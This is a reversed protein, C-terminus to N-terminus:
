LVERGVCLFILILLDPLLNGCLLFHFIALGEKPYIQM